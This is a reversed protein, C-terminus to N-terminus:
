HRRCAPCLDACNDEWANKALDFFEEKTYDSFETENKLKWVEELGDDSSLIAEGSDYLTDCNICKKLYGLKHLCIAMSGLEEHRRIMSDKARGM